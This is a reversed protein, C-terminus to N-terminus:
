FPLDEPFAENVDPSPTDQYKANENQSKSYTPYIKEAVIVLKSQKKGDKNIWREQEIYGEVCVTSGKVMHSACKAYSDGFAKVEIFSSNDQWSDGVKKSRNVVITFTGYATGSKGTKVEDAANRVMRGRIILKNLDTM